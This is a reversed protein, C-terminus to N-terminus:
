ARWSGAAAFNDRRMTRGGAETAPAACCIVVTMTCVCTSLVRSNKEVWVPRRLSRRWMVGSECCAAAAGANSNRCSNHRPAETVCTAETRFEQQQLPQRQGREEPRATIAVSHASPRPVFRTVPAEAITGPMAACGSVSSGADHEDDGDRVATNSPRVTRAKYESAVM